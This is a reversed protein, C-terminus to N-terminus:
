GQGKKPLPRTVKKKWDIFEALSKFKRPRQSGSRKAPLHGIVVERLANLKRGLPTSARWVLIVRRDDPEIILTDLKPVGAVDRDRFRFNIPVEVRPVTFGWQGDPTLNVCGVAEGGRLHDVQQDPPASQFYLPDFDDPLFPCVNDLWDQDYTGAHAVRAPFNRGISGLSMPEYSGVRTNVPRMPQATTPLPKGILDQKKTLPYHGVGVPNYKYTDQKDPNDRHTDVGGYARGYNIPSKVFPKPESPIVSLGVSDWVREGVVDLTKKVSGIALSVSVKKTHVGGPAHAWGNVLVDCRPKYFAFDCEYKIASSEPDGWHEDAFTMPQQDQALVATADPRVDFTGKVVAVCHDRGQKDTAVTLEAEMGTTNTNIQM